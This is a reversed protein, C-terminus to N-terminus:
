ALSACKSNEGGVCRLNGYLDKATVTFEAQLGATALELTHGAAQQNPSTFSKAACTGAPHVFVTSPTGSVDQGRFLQDSPVNTKAMGAYQWQLVPTTAYTAGNAPVKYNVSLDYYYSSRLDITGSPDQNPGLSTWQNIIISNDVWIKVRDTMNMSGRDWTFTYVSDVVPAISGVWRVAFSDITAISFENNTLSGAKMQVQQMASTDESYKVPSSFDHNEYYTATVGGRTLLTAYLTNSGAAYQTYESIYSSDGEDVVVAHVPRGDAGNEISNPPFVRVSFIDGGEGRENDYVDNAQLTLQASTGATALALGEGTAWSHAGVAINPSVLFSFPSQKVHTEYYLQSAPIIEKPTSQSAWSLEVFATGTVEKYELKINYFVHPKLV